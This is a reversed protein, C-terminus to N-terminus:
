FNKADKILISQALTCLSYVEFICNVSSTALATYSIKRNFENEEDVFSFYYSAFLCSTFLSFNAVLIIRENRLKEYTPKDIVNEFHLKKKELEEQESPFFALKIVQSISGIMKEGPKASYM